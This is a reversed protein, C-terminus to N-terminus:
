SRTTRKSWSPYELFQGEAKFAEAATDFPGALLRKPSPPTFSQYVRVQQNHHDVFQVYYKAKVVDGSNVSYKTKSM